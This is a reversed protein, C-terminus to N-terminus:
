RRAAKSKEAQNSLLMTAYKPNTGAIAPVEDVDLEGVLKPGLFLRTLWRQAFPAILGASLGLLCGFAIKLFDLWITGAM